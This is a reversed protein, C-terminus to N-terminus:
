FAPRRRAGRAAPRVTSERTPPRTVPAPQSATAARDVPALGGLYSDLAALGVTELEFAAPDLLWNHLLGDILAHVGLSAIRCDTEPRVQGLSRAATFIRELDSLWAERLRIRRERVPLLEDVYETRHAAIEFVRRLQPDRVTQGLAEAVRHRIQALPAGADSAVSREMGCELPLTVRLMMADFLDAKNQFHWYIAGRTLGASQAIEHLSTRSVGRQQFVREATDLILDRTALAQEKTRRVM